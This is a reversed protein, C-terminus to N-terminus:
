NGRNLTNIQEAVLADNHLAYIRNVLKDMGVQSTSKDVICIYTGTNFDYVGCNTHSDSNINNELFYTKLKGEIRYGTRNTGAIDYTSTELNFLTETQELLEKSKNVADVYAQKGDKIIDKIDDATVGAVVKGGLLSTIVDLMDNYRSMRIIGDTNSVKFENDGIVLYNSGRRRELPFKMAVTTRDFNDTVSIDVGLQLYKHIRLSCKSVSNLFYNFEDQDTFCLARELCQEVEQINIRNENLYVRKSTIGNKNTSMITELNFEVEGIMGKLNEQSVVWTNFFSAAQDFTITSISFARCLSSLLNAVWGTKNTDTASSGVLALKQGYYEISDKSYVVDNIKMSKGEKLALIRKSTKDILKEKAKYAKETRLMNQMYRKAMLNAEKNSVLQMEKPNTNLWYNDLVEGSPIIADQEYFFYQGVGTVANINGNLYVYRGADCYNYSPHTHPVIAWVHEDKSTWYGSRTAAVILRHNDFEFIDKMIHIKSSEKLKKNDEDTLAYETHTSITFSSNIVEKLKGYPLDSDIFSSGKKDQSVAREIVSQRTKTIIDDVGDVTSIFDGSTSRYRPTGLSYLDMALLLKKITSSNLKTDKIYHLRNLGSIGSYQISLPIESFLLYNEMNAMPKETPRYTVEENSDTNYNFIYGETPGLGKVANPTVLLYCTSKPIVLALNNRLGSIKLDKDTEFDIDKFANEAMSLEADTLGIEYLNNIAPLLQITTKM